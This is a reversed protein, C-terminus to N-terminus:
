RLVRCVAGVVVLGCRARSGDRVGFVAAQRPIRHGGVGVCGALSVIHLASAVVFAGCCGAELVAREVAVVVVAASARLAGFGVGGVGLGSLEFFADFGSGFWFVAGGAFVAGAAAAVFAAFGVGGVGPGFPSLFADFGSGFGFVAGGGFVRGTAAAVLADFGAPGVVPVAFSSLPSLLADFWSGFGFVAGGGFVPGAAAAVFASFGFPVVLAVVVLLAFLRCM